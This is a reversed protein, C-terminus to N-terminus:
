REAAPAAVVPELVVIPIHHPAEARYLRYGPYSAAAQEFVAEYPPGFLERPRAAFRHRGVQVMATPQAVLNQYWAPIRRSGGRSGIGAWSGAPSGVAPGVPFCGLAATRSEGSSRGVTTLLLTANGLSRGGTLRYLFPHLLQDFRTVSFRGIARYALTPLRVASPYRAVM